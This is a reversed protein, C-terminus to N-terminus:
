WSAFFYLILPSGKQSIIDVSNGTFIDKLIFDPAPFEDPLGDGSYSFLIILFLVIIISASIVGRRM